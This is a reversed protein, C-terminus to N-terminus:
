LVHGRGEGDIAKIKRGRPAIGTPTQDMTTMVRARERGGQTHTNDEVARAADQLRKKEHRLNPLRRQSFLHPGRRISRKKDHEGFHFLVRTTRGNHLWTISLACLPNHRTRDRIKHAWLAGRRDRNTPTHRPLQKRRGKVRSRERREHERRLFTTEQKKM